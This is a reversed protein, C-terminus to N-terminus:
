GENEDLGLWERAEKENRFIEITLPSKRLEALSQYMRSFGYLLDTPAVIATRMGALKESHATDIRINAELASPSGEIEEIGSLDVLERVGPKIRTDAAVAEAQDKLDRDTIVGFFRTYLVNKEEDYTYEVSM